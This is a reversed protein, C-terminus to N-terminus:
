SVESDPNAGAAHGLLEIMKQYRRTTEQFAVGGILGGDVVLEHGNVFGAEDSALWLAASAIDEPQGARRLPQTRELMATVVGLSADAQARSYGVGHAFIPTAVGGPCICNVRVGLEGLEMASSRTLHIVAAKAASYVHPALGARLGAVSATNIISGTKQTVMVRGALKIGVAVSRLLVAILDDFDAMDTELISTLKGPVGANNFMCDLRGWRDLAQQIAAQVEAERRVDTRVFAAREGLEAALVEGQQVQLDAIVVAAGEAVFRRATAAGIGSAGGTIVAVRDRLRQMAM